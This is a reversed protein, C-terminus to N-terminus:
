KGFCGRIYANVSYATYNPRWNAKSQKRAEGLFSSLSGAGGIVADYNAISPINLIASAKPYAVQQAVSTSDGLATKFQALTKDSGGIRFWNGTSGAARYFKNGAGTIASADGTSAIEVLRCQDVSSPVQIENNRFTNSLYDGDWFYVQSDFNPPVGNYAPWNYIVNDEIAVNKLVMSPYAPHGFTMAFPQGVNAAITNAFFNRRVSGSSLHEFWAGWGRPDSGTNKADLVCNDEAIGSTGSALPGYSPLYTSGIEFGLACQVFLNGSCTGGPRMMVGYASIRSMINNRVTINANDNYDIYMGHEFITEVDLSINDFLCEEIVVGDTNLMYIGQSHSVGPPVGYLTHFVSRRVLINTARNNTDNGTIELGTKYNYVLCDEILLDDIESYGLDIGAPTGSGSTGNYTHATLELGVFAVHSIDNGIYIGESGGTKLIPRANLGTSTPYSSILLKETSSLGSKNFGSINQDTWTDGCRLKLWDPYTDRLNAIAGNSGGLNFKPGHANNFSTSHGAPGPCTSNTYVGNGEPAFGCFGDNSGQGGERSCYTIQTLKSGTTTPTFITWGAHSYGSYIRWPPRAIPMGVGQLALLFAALLDRRSLSWM